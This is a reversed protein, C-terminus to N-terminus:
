SAELDQPHRPRIVGSDGSLIDDLPLKPSFTQCPVPDAPFGKQLAYPFPLCPIASNYYILQLPEPRGAVPGALPKCHVLAKRLSHALNEYREIVLAQYIAALAHDVPTRAAHGREGIDLDFALFQVAKEVVDPIGQYASLPRQHDGGGPGFRHQAIRSDGHVRFVVSVLGMDPLLHDQRYHAAVDGYDAIGIDLALEAGPRELNSGGVIEVIEFEGVFCLRSSTCTISSRPIM